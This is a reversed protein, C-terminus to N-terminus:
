CCCCRSCRYRWTSATVAISIRVISTTMRTVTKCSNLYTIDRSSSNIRIRIKTIKGTKITRSTTSATSIRCSFLQVEKLHFLTADYSMTDTFSILFRIILNFSEFSSSRTRMVNNIMTTITVILKWGIVGNADGGVQHYYHLILTQEEFWLVLTVVVDHTLKYM